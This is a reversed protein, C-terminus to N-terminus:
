LALPLWPNSSSQTSKEPSYHLQSKLNHNGLYELAHHSQNPTLSLQYQTAYPSKRLLPSNKNTQNTNTNCKLNQHRFKRLSPLIHFVKNKLSLITM